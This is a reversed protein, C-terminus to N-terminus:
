WNEPKIPYAGYTRATDMMADINEIPSNLPIQCGTSLVFGNPSNYGKKICEKTANIVEERTGKNMIYVPDVNGSICVRKGAINKAEELDEVNDISLTDIGTDLM